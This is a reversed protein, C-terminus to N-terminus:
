LCPQIAPNCPGAARAPAQPVLASLALVLTFLLVSLHKM